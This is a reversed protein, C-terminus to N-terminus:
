FVASAATSKIMGTIQGIEEDDLQALYDAVAALSEDVVVQALASDDGSLQAEEAQMLYTEIQAVEETSLQSLFNATKVLMEDDEEALVQM